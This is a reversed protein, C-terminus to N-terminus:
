VKRTQPMMRNIGYQAITNLGTNLLRNTQQNGTLNMSNIAGGAGGMLAARMPDQGTVGARAAGSAAGSLGKIVQGWGASQTTAAVAQKAANVAATPDLGSQIATDYASNFVSGTLASATLSGAAGGAAGSLGGMMAGKGMDQGTVGSYLAGTAAGALGQSVAQAAANGIAQAVAPSVTNSLSSSVSSSIAGGIAGSVAGGAATGVASVGAKILGQQDSGGAFKNGLYAGAVAGWGGIPATAIGAVIPIVYNGIAKQTDKGFWRGTMNGSERIWRDNTRSPDIMYDMQNAFNKKSAAAQINNYGGTMGSTMLSRNLKGIDGTGGTLYQGMKTSNMATTQGGSIAGAVDGRAAATAGGTSIDMIADGCGM